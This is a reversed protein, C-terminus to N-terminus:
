PCSVDVVGGAIIAGEKRVLYSHSGSSRGTVARVAQGYSAATASRNPVNQFEIVYGSSVSSHNVFQFLLYGLGNRCANIISVEPDSVPPTLSGCRFRLVDEYVVVGDRKIVVEHEGTPRGTVPMRWWDRPQVTWERPSLNAFEIRYSAPSASENVINFDARGNGGLCSSAVTISSDLPLEPSRVTIPLSASRYTFSFSGDRYDEGYYRMTITTPGAELARMSVTSPGPPGIPTEPTDFGAATVDNLEYQAFYCTTGPLNAPECRCNSRFTVDIVDGVEPSEDSVTLTPACFIDIFAPTAAPTPTPEMVQLAGASYGCTTGAPATSCACGDDFRMTMTQGAVLSQSPPTLTPPCEVARVDPIPITPTSLAAVAAQEVSGAPQAGAQGSISAVLVAGVLLVAWATIHRLARRGLGRRMNM